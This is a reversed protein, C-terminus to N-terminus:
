KAARLKPIGPNILHIIRAMCCHIGTPQTHEDDFVFHQDAPRDALCQRMRPMRDNFRFVPGRRKFPHRRRWNVRHDQVKPQRVRVIQCQEGRDSAAQRVDRHNQHSRVARRIHNLTSELEPTNRIRLLGKSICCRM